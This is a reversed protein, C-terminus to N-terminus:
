DKRNGPVHEDALGIGVIHYGADVYLTEGTVGSALPSLLFVSAQAVEEHTVPRKLPAVANVHDWLLTFGPIGRASLTRLAGASVANVRRGKPGLEYALMRVSAELASKAIGMVNYKPVVKEAAYYSFTVMSGGENWYPEAERAVAVLSYASIEMALLWDEKTTEIYRGEMARRPAFAISHVIYDIGGWSEGLDAMVERLRAEDTVDLEYLRINPMHRTAKEVLPRVRDGQYTIALEAGAEHLKQATAFAISRENAVGMVLAKKGSLDIALM